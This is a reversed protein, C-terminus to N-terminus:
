AISKRWSISCCMVSLIHFICKLGSIVVDTSLVVPLYLSNLVRSNMGIVSRSPHWRIGDRGHPALKERWIHRWSQGRECLRGSNSELFFLCIGVFWSFYDLFGKKRYGGYFSLLNLLDFRIVFSCYKVESASCFRTRLFKRLAIVLIWYM